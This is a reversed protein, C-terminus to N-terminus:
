LFLDDFSCDKINALDIIKNDITVSGSLGESHWVEHDHFVDLEVSGDESTAEVGFNGAGDDTYYGKSLIYVKSTLLDKVIIQDESYLESEGFDYGISYTADSLHVEIEVESNKCAAQSTLSILIVSLAFVLKM